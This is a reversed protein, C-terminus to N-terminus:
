LFRKPDFSAPASFIKRGVEKLVGTQDQEDILAVVNNTFHLHIAGYIKM